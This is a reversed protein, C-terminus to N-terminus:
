KKRSRTRPRMEEESEEESKEEDKDKKAIINARKRKLNALGEKVEKQLRKSRAMEKQAEEISNRKKKKEKVGKNQRLVLTEPKPKGGQKPTKVSKERELEEIRQKYDAM